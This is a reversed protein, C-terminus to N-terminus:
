ISSRVFVIFLYIFMHLHCRYNMHVINELGGFYVMFTLTLNITHKLVSLKIIVCFMYTCDGWICYVGFDLLILQMHYM